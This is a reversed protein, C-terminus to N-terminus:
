EDMLKLLEVKIIDIPFMIMRVCGNCIHFHFHNLNPNNEGKKSVNDVDVRALKKRIPFQHSIYLSIYVDSLVM